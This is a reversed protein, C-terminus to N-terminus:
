KAIKLRVLFWALFRGLRDRQGETPWAPPISGFKAMATLVTVRLEDPDIGLSQLLRHARSSPELVALWLNAVGIPKPGPLQRTKVLHWCKDTADDLAVRLEGTMRDPATVRPGPPTDQDARPAGDLGVGLHGVRPADIVSGVIAARVAEVTLEPHDTLVRDTVPDPTSLLGLLLHESGHATAHLQVAHAGGARFAHACAEEWMKM